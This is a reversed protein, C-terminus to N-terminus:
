HGFLTDYLCDRDCVTGIQDGVPPDIALEVALVRVSGSFEIRAVSSPPTPQCPALLILNSINRIRPPPRVPRSAWRKVAAAIRFM